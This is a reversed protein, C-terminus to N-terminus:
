NQCNQCFYTSRGHQKIREILLNCQTCKLKERNYVKYFNQMQGSAGNTHIFDSITSGGLSIAKNLVFTINFYLDEIQKDNLENTNKLPSISSLFLIESAYINGIGCIITSDMILKKINVPKKLLIKKLIPLSFESSLPEVGLKNIYNNQEFTISNDFIDIVGFRRPDKYILYFDNLQLYFHMHKELNLTKNILLQGTMGLHIVLYNHEFFIIIYKNKRVINKIKQNILVDVNPIYKKRLTINKSFTNLVFQNSIQNSLERKIIEVEPLEPM